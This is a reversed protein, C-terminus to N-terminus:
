NSHAFEWKLDVTGLPGTFRLIVFRANNDALATLQYIEEAQVESCDAESLARSVDMPDVDGVTMARRYLRVAQQKRLAYRVVGENGAGFLSAMYQVPLRNEDIGALFSDMSTDYVGDDAKALVPLLPPVYFLMPLTRFEPHLPLALNWEEVFKYTPSNQAAQITSDAIGNEEAAAIVTPDFPDLLMDMQRDIVDAEDASAVSEIQDADYLMVGLYRIRGVCSHM